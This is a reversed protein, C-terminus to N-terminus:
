IYVVIRNNEEVFFDKVEARLAKKVENPDKVLEENKYIVVRMSIYELSQQSYDCVGNLEKKTLLEFATM